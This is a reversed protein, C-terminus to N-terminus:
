MAMLRAVDEMFLYCYPRQLGEKKLRAADFAIEPALIKLKELTSTIRLLFESKEGAALLSQRQEKRDLRLGTLQQAAGHCVFFKEALIPRIDRVYDVTACACPLGSLMALAILKEILPM